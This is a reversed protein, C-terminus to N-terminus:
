FQAAAAVSSNFVNRPIHTPVRFFTGFLPSFTAPQESFFPGLCFFIKCKCHDSTSSVILQYINITERIFCCFFHKDVASGPLTTSQIYYVYKLGAASHNQFWPHNQLWFWIIRFGFGIIRCGLNIRFGFFHNQFWPHNRFWLCRSVLIAHNLASSTHM